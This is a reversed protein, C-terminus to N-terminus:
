PGAPAGPRIEEPGVLLSATRRDPRTRFAAIAAPNTELFYVRHGRVVNQPETIIFLGAWGPFTLRTPDFWGTASLTQNPIYVDSGPPSRDVLRRM